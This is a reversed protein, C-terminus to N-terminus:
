KSGDLCYYKKKVLSKALNNEDRQYEYVFTDAATLIDLIQRIRIVYRRIAINKRQLENGLVVFADMGRKIAQLCLGCWIM